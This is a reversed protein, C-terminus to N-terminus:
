KGLHKRTSQLQAAVIARHSRRPNRTKASRDVDGLTLYSNTVGAGPGDPSRRRDCYIRFIPSFYETAWWSGIDMVITVSPLVVLVVRLWIPTRSLSFIAGTLLFIISIGFLHIHSVRALQSVSPGPDQQVIKAM